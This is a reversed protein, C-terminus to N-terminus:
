FRFFRILWFYFILVVSLSNHQNTRSFLSSSERRHNSVPVELRGTQWNRCERMLEELM